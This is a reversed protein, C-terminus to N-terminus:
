SSLLQKFKKYHYKSIIEGKDVRDVFEQLAARMQEAHTQSDPAMRQHQPGKNESQNISYLPPNM